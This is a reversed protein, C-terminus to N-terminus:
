FEEFRLKIQQGQKMPIILFSNKDAPYDDLKVKLNEPIRIKFTNNSTSKIEVERLLGKKLEASVLFGGETRLDQFSINKWSEPIAPFIDIFGLHSQILMEHVGQTFALNGELTFPRYTFRSYQGGKQDGNAHFSNSLIFNEAFIHLNEAAKEGRKARAYLCAAWSFSYGTWLSTGMKELRRLSRNILTDEAATGPNLIGLPHLAMMQAIHRHSEDLNQGPAITLGTENQDFDPLHNLQERWLMAEDKKGMAEATKGAASFAYRILALDYNTFNLFWANIKNDHYEPSSSLPLRSKGNETILINKLFIAVDRIYPYARDELFKRDVTYVWQWYFHQSLWASITPSFSYQIWGGMPKGQLTTVGPVNLGDVEFFAKTYKKNEERVSWLWDTFSVALDTHNGSYAPWYSLQTNLDHHFDGKWPPLKGNDATWVAQLTIAPAGKRATSGLKYMDRYYQKEIIQDPLQVSSRAWFNNWWELHTKRLQGIGESIYKRCRALAILNQDSGPPYSAISWIGTLREGSRKWVVSVEYRFGLAGKQEFTIGDPHNILTGQPYGLRELSQGEVSNATKLSDSGRYVPPVLVPVLNEPARHFEFIGAPETAHVYTKLLTGNRWRATATATQLDLESVADRGMNFELAAGPIKTPWPIEEYPVDGYQQVAKYNSNLVQERVWKFNLVSFDVVSREDWLDARDLAMRVNSGKHWLMAGLMGNGMPLSEDWVAPLKSFELNHVPNPQASAATISIFIMFASRFM